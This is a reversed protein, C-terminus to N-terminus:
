FYFNNSAINLSNDLREYIYLFLNNAQKETTLLGYLERM